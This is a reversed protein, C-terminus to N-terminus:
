CGGAVFRGHAQLAVGIGKAHLYALAAVIRHVTSSAEGESYRTQKRLKELMEGGNCFEMVLVLQSPTDFIEFM